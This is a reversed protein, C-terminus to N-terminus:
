PSFSLCLSKYLMTTIKAAIHNVLVRIKNSNLQMNLLYLYM